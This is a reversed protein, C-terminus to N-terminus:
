KGSLSSGAESRPYGIWGREGGRVVKLGDGPKKDEEKAVREGGECWIDRSNGSKDGVGIVPGAGAPGERSPSALEISEQSPSLIDTGTGGCGAEKKWRATCQGADFGRKM